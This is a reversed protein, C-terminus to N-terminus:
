PQSITFQVQVSPKIPNKSKLATVKFNPLSPTKRAKIRSPGLQIYIMKLHNCELVCVRVPIRSCEILQQCFNTPSGFELLRTVSEWVREGLILFWGREQDDICLEVEALTWMRVRAAFSVPGLGILWRNRTWVDTV